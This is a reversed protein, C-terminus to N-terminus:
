VLPEFGGMGKLFCEFLWTFSEVDENALLGVRFTVCKGHHDVGTFPAFVMCYTNTDYTTDFSLMNGFISYNRRSIADAWFVMTLNAMAADVERVYSKMDRSFNKFDVLTAGVSEYGGVHEKM